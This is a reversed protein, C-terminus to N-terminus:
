TITRLRPRPVDKSIESSLLIAGKEDNHKHNQEQATATVVATAAIPLGIIGELLCDHIGDNIDDPKNHDHAGNQSEETQV